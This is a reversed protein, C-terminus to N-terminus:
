SHKKLIPVFCLFLCIREKTISRSQVGCSSSQNDLAVPLIGKGTYLLESMQSQGTFSWCPLTEFAISPHNCLYRDCQIISAPKNEYSCQFLSHTSSDLDSQNVLYVLVCGSLNDRIM